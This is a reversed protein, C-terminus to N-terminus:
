VVLLMPTLPNRFSGLNSSMNQRLFQRSEMLLAEKFLEPKRECLYRFTCQVIANGRTRLHRTIYVFNTVSLLAKGLLELNIKRQKKTLKILDKTEEDQIAQNLRSEVDKGSLRSWRSVSSMVGSSSTIDTQTAQCHVSIIPKPKAHRKSSHSVVADVLREFHPDQEDSDSDAIDYICEKRKRRSPRRTTSASSSSQTISSITSTQSDSTPSMDEDELSTAKPVVVLQLIVSKNPCQCKLRRSFEQQHKGRYSGDEAMVLRYKDCPNCSYIEGDICLGRPIFACTVPLVIRVSSSLAQRDFDAPLVGRRAKLQAVLLKRRASATTTQSADSTSAETATRTTVPVLSSIM